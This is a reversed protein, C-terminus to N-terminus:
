FYDKNKEKLFGDGKDLIGAYDLWDRVGVM